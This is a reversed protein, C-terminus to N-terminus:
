SWVKVDGLDTHICLLADPKLTRKLRISQADGFEGVQVVWLPITTRVGAASVTLSGERGCAKLLPRAQVRSARHVSGQKIPVPQSTAM